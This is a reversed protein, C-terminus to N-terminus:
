RVVGMWPSSASSWARLRGGRVGILYDHLNVTPDCHGPILWLTDGLSPLWGSTNGAQTDPHLVGHEDGGNAFRLAQEPALAHLRAPGLRDCPGQPGCRLRRAPPQAVHGPDQRLACARFRAPGRRASQRRLRRGHLPLLRAPNRWLRRQRGNVMTGTGAGTILPIEIGARDFEHRTRNVLRLVQEIATKREQATRLHQAGGHYAQLGAFHLAPQAQIARALVVAAEGPEVGCRNQGVDIEVLVDIAANGAQAVQMAQALRTIGEECDVAIALRGGEASLAKALAAVRALKLPAIVENSIFIHTM